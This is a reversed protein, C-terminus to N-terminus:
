AALKLGKMGIPNKKSKPGWNRGIEIGVAISLGDMEPAPMTMAKVIRQLREELKSDDPLEFILSDHIQWVLAYRLFDNEKIRLMADKIYAAETSAPNFSLADKAQDGLKPENTRWDIIINGAWDTKYIDWFHFRYKYVNELWHQKHVLNWTDRQWQKIKRGITNFYLDQIEEAFAKTPFAERYEMWLKYPVAGYNSGHACNKSRAYVQEFNEKIDAVAEHIDSDSWTNVDIPEKWDGSNVLCYSALIGHVSLKAIRIYDPDDAYYGTIVAEAGEHDLEALVHGPKAIFQERYIKAYKGRKIVNQVNPKVSNFRLNAPKQGFTTHIRGDEWPVYGDIYQGIMKKIKRYDLFLPLVPDKKHAKMLKEIAKVDTTEKETKYNRPVAYDQSRLYSAVQKPSTPLFKSKFVWFQRTRGDECAKEVSCQEFYGARKNVEHTWPKPIDSEVYGLNACDLCHNIEHFKHSYKGKGKCKPCVDWGQEPPLYGSADCGECPGMKSRTKKQYGKGACSRCRFMIPVMKYMKSPKVSDPIVSQIEDDVKKLDSVLLKRLEAQKIQDLLMGKKYMDTCVPELDVWHRMFIDLRNQKQMRDRTEYVCWIAADSDVCSYHEPDADFLSKWEHLDTLNAAVSGLAKPLATYLWHWMEMADLIKSGTAEGVRIGKAELRPVDFKYNWFVHFPTTLNFIRQIYPLFPEKWPITIAYGKRYAFSIRTIEADDIEDYEDEGKKPSEETEIDANLWCDDNLRTAARAIFDEIDDFTPYLVYEPRYSEWPACGNKAIAFSKSLDNIALITLNQKGRLIHSPHIGPVVYGSWGEFRTKFVYGRRPAHGEVIAGYSGLVERTPIDGMTHLVTPSYHELVKRVYPRCHDIAADEWPSKALWNGPPQCNVINYLTLADRGKGLLRLHKALQFGADGVFPLSKIREWKGGAEGLGLVGSEGDGDPLVFGGFEKGPIQPECREKEELICGICSMGEFLPYSSYPPKVQAM